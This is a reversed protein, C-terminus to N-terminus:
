ALSTSCRGLRTAEASLHEDGHPSDVAVVVLEHEADHRAKRDHVVPETICARHYLQLVAAASSSSVSRSSAHTRVRPSSWRSVLFALTLKAPVRMPRPLTSSASGSIFSIVSVRRASSPGSWMSVVHIVETWPCGLLATSCKLTGCADGQSVQLKREARLHDLPAPSYEAALVVLRQEVGTVKSSWEAVQVAVVRRDRQQLLSHIAQHGHPSCCGCVRVTSCSRCLACSRRSLEMSPGDVPLPLVSLNAGQNAGSRNAGQSLPHSKRSGFVDARVHVRPTFFPRSSCVRISIRLRGRTAASSLPEPM